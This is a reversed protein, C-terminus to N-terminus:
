LRTLIAVHGFAHHKNWEAKCFSGGVEEGVRLQIRKAFDRLKFEAGRTHFRRRSQLGRLLACCGQVEFPGLAPPLQRLRTAPVGKSNVLFDNHEAGNAYSGHTIFPTFPWKRRDLARTCHLFPAIYVVLFLPPISSSFSLSMQFSRGGNDRRVERPTPVPAQLKASVGPLLLLCIWDVFYLQGRPRPRM